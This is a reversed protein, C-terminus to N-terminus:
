RHRAARPPRPRPGAPRALDFAHNNATPLDVGVDQLLKGYRTPTRFAYCMSGERAIQGLQRRGARGELNVFTM